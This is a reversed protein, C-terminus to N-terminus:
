AKRNRRTSTRRPRKREVGRRGRRADGAPAGRRTARCRDRWGGRQDAGLARGIPAFTPLLIELVREPDRGVIILPLLLECVVVFAAVAVILSSLARRAEVGVLRALLVTALGTVIGLLLRVPIFLSSRTTSITRRARWAPRQARRGPAAVLRMLASFAADIAGLYM